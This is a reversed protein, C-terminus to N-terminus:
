LQDHFEWCYQPYKQSQALTKPSIELTIRRSVRTKSPLNTTGEFQEPSTKQHQQQSKTQSRSDTKAGGIKLLQGLLGFWLFPWFSFNMSKAWKQSNQEKEKPFGTRNVDRVKTGSHGQSFNMFRGKKPKTQRPWEQFRLALKQM